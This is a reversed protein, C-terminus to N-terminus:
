SQSESAPFQNIPWHRPSYSTRIKAECALRDTKCPAVNRFRYLSQGPVINAVFTYQAVLLSGNLAQIECKGNREKYNMLFAGHTDFEVRQRHSLFTDLTFMTVNRESIGFLDLARSNATVFRRDGNTVVIADFSTRLLKRLNDKRGRREERLRRPRDAISRVLKTLTEHARLLLAKVPKLGILLRTTSKSPRYM